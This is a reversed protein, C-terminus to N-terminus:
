SIGLLRPLFLITEPVFAMLLTVAFAAIIFPVLQKSIRELPIKTINSTVFLTMGVPPTVLGITLMICFWVGFQVQNMGAAMALPMMVPTFILMAATAEMACGIIILIVFMLLIIVAGNQTFGLVAAKVLDPVKAIAMTWGMINGFGIIIFIGATVITSNMLVRPLMSPRFKGYILGAIVAALVAVAGSESPTFVGSTIGGVLVVPVLLAPLAKLFSVAALKLDFHDTSRPLNLSKTKLRIVAIYGLAILAGPIFGGMFMANVSVGSLVSFYVFTVSPPIVPGLVGSACVLSASFDDPYKDRIMEPVVVACLIAAVANASGLIASLIMAVVVVVYALGGRFQGVLSRVFDILKQTVGSANMLEGAMIFFPICTLSGVNIGAFVKQTLINFFAANGMTAVHTLGTIGLVFVIPVGALLLVIFAALVAIM